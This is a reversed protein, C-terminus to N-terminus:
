GSKTDGRAESKKKGWYDALIFPYGHFKSSSLRAGPNKNKPALNSSYAIMVIWVSGRVATLLLFFDPWAEYRPFSRAFSARAVKEPFYKYKVGGLLQWVQKRRSGDPSFM